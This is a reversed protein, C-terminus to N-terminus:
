EGEELLFAPDNITLRYEYLGGKAVRRKSLYHSGFKKKRLHRLQSGVSQEPFKVGYKKELAIVLEDILFWGSKLALERVRAQQDNLRSYDLKPNYAPGFTSM